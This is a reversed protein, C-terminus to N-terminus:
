RNDRFRREKRKVELAAVELCGRKGRMEWKTLKVGEM